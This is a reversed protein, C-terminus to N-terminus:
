RDTGGDRRVRTWRNTGGMWIDMRREEVKEVHLKAKSITAGYSFFLSVGSICTVFIDWHSKM